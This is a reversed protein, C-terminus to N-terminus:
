DLEPIEDREVLLKISRAANPVRSILGKKELTLVMQHITPPTAQFYRAMDAEAPACGNLKTYYYIFALYQGQRYTPMAKPKVDRLIFKKNLKPCYIATVKGALFFIRHSPTGDDGLSIEKKKYQSDELMEVVTREFFDSQHGCDCKFSSPYIEEPM